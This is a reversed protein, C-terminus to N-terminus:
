GSLRSRAARFLRDRVALGIGTPAPLLALIPGEGAEDFSRLASFLEVAMERGTGLVRNQRCPAAVPKESLVLCHGDLDWARKVLAPIGDFAELPVRPAYHSELMGPAEPADPVPPPRFGTWELKQGLVSEVSERDLGGPRLLRAQPGSLDVITSEVGIECPGDDLVVDVRDGLGKRVHEASTPSVYGFPNASPAAVPLGVKRLFRLAGAHSPVRIGVTDLGSTVLDPILPEGQPSRRRPLVLTLPGPWFARALKEARFDPM